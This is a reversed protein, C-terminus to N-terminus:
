FRSFTTSLLINRWRSKEPFRIPFASREFAEILIRAQANTRYLVGFDSFTMRDDDDSDLRGSDHSFMTTGGVLKEVQHVVYEAEAKDTAAEFVTLRGQVYLRAVVSPVASEFSEASIVDGCAELLNSATRYNESLFVIRAEPFEMGFSSFFHVDSGRFGYIAQNPDGIATICVGNQVLLEILDHQVQNIDQYEDVFVERYMAQINLRLRENQVLMRLAELMLDDFDLLGSERLSKNYFAIEAATEQIITGGTSSKMRSVSDLLDRRKSTSSGPLVRAAIENRQRDTAIAFNEPVGAVTFHQRLLSLCFQHFTGIFIRELLSADCLKSIRERM